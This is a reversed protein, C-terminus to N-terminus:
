YLWTVQHLAKTFPQPGDGGFHNLNKDPKSNAVGKVEALQQRKQHRLKQQFKYQSQSSKKAVQAQKKSM